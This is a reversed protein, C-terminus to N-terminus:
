IALYNSLITIISILKFKISFHAKTKNKTYNAYLHNLFIKLGGYREPPTKLCKHFLGGIKSRESRLPMCIHPTHRVENGVRELLPFKGSSWAPFLVSFGCSIPVSDGLPASSEILLFKMNTGNRHNIRIKRKLQLWCNM